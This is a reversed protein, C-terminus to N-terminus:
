VPVTVGVECRPDNWETVSFWHPRVDLDSTLIEHLVHTTRLQLVPPASPRRLMRGRRAVLRVLRDHHGGAELDEVTLDFDHGQISVTATAQRRGAQPPSCTAGRREFAAAISAAIEADSTEPTLNRNQFAAHSRLSVGFTHCDPEAGSEVM